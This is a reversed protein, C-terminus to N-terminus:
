HHHHVVEPGYGVVNAIDLKMVIEGAAFWMGCEAAFVMFKLFQTSSVQRTTLQWWIEKFEMAAQDWRQSVAEPSLRYYWIRARAAWFDSRAQSLAYQTDKFTGKIHPNGIMRMMKPWSNHIASARHVASLKGPYKPLRAKNIIPLTKM